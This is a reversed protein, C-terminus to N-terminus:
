GLSAEKHKQQSKDFIIICYFTVQRGKDLELQFNLSHKKLNLLFVQFLPFVIQLM